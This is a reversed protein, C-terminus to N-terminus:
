ICLFVCVSIVLCVKTKKSLFSLSLFVRLYSIRLIDSLFSLCFVLDYHVFLLISRIKVQNVTYIYMVWGVDGDWNRFRCYFTTM